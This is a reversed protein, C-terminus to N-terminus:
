KNNVDSVPTHTAAKVTNTQAAGPLGPTMLHISAIKATALTNPVQASVSFGVSNGSSLDLECSAFLDWTHGDASVFSEFVKGCRAIKLYSPLRIPRESRKLLTNKKSPQRIQLFLEGSGLFGFLLSPGLAPNDGKVLLGTIAFSDNDAIAMVQASFAYNGTAKTWVYRCRDEGKLMDTGTGQIFWTGGMQITSGGQTREGLNM